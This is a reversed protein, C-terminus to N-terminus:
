TIEVEGGAIAALSGVAAGIVEPYDTTLELLASEDLSHGLEAAQSLM